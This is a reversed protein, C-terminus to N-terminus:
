LWDCPDPVITNVVQRKTSGYIAQKADAEEFWLRRGIKHSPIFKGRKGDRRVNARDRLHWVSLGTMEALEEVTILPLGDIAPRKFETRGKM